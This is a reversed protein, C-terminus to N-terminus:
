PAPRLEVLGGGATRLFYGGGGDQKPFVIGKFKTPKADGPVVVSGSIAGSATALKLSPKLEGTQAFVAVGKSSLTFPLTLTPNVGGSSLVLEAAQGPTGFDFVPQNAAPKAYRSGILPLTVAFSDRLTTAKPRAPRFWSVSADLDSLAPRDRFFVQAVASGRGKDLAVYFPWEDTGTIAASQSFKTGDALEGKVRLTGAPAVTLFAFGDGQPATPLANAEDPALLLTYAGALPTPAAKSFIVRDAVFGVENGSENVTGVIADAGTEQVLALSVALAKTKLKNGDAGVFSGDADLKGKLPSKVGGRLMTGTFAGTRALKLTVLGSTRHAPEDERVLGAYSGAFAAFDSVGSNGIKRWTTSAGSVGINGAIDEVGAANFRLVYSGQRATLTQLGTISFISANVAQVRVATPLPVPVGDRLLAVDERGLSTPQIAESFSVLVNPVPSRRSAPRVPTIVATPAALDIFTALAASPSANGANDLAEVMLMHTGARILDVPLSFTAGTVAGEGLSQGTTKDTARVRTVGTAVRGTVAVATTNTRADTASRGRDPTIALKSPASPSVTQTTWTRTTLGTGVNGIADSVGAANVTLTYNGAATTATSLGVISYSTEDNQRISAGALSVNATGRKLTIDAATFSGDALPESFIVELSAVPTSRPSPSVETLSTVTPGAGDITFSETLMGLGAVGDGDDVGGALVSFRYLGDTATFAGLGGVRVANPATQTFTVGANLLNAGGDRTLLLDDATFSGLTLARSFVVDITSVPGTRPGPTFNGASVVVLRSVSMAFIVSASGQGARGTFEAVGGAQVSLVYTGEATTLGALGEIRFTADDLPMVTVGGNILNPGENLRLTVDAATFTDPDIGRSFVVDIGDLPTTRIAPVVPGLQTVQVAPPLLVTPDAEVYNLTYSGTGNFDFLHLSRERLAGTLSNPFTRDTQWINDGVLLVKGDSRIARVLKLGPAPDPIRIYSFGSPQTLTLQRTFGTGTAAASSALSVPAPAGTSQYLTDPANNADPVDNALFDPLQDDGPRDARVVHILEHIEVREILSTEAGGLENAHEFSAEYDIFKGQLSSELIFQAVQTEGPDLDGLNVTLSPDRTQNGVQTGVIRFDILLGKENEIIKPQASTISFDKAIGGGTNTVLLGLSFPESPEVLETFPDDSFVDRQQFYKLTLRADPFVTVPSGLLPLAVPQGGDNFHLTGAFRYVAPANPAATNKPIFTFQLRGTAGPALTGNGAAGALGSLEPGRVFFRDNTSNGNEDQIDLAVTVNELASEANNNTVELTGLFAQRTLVAQQDIQIKVQACVGQTKKQLSDLFAVAADRLADGPNEYGEIRSIEFVNNVRAFRAALEDTAIFDDSQGPRLQSLNTVGAALYDHTREYRDILRVAAANSVGQPLALALLSQRETTSIRRGADSNAAAADLFAQNWAQWTVADDTTVWSEDGYFYALADIIDQIRAAREEVLELAADQFSIPGAPTTVLEGRTNRRMMYLPAEPPAGAGLGQRCKRYENLSGIACGLAGGIPGGPLVCGVAAVVCDISDGGQICDNVSKACLGLGVIPPTPLFGTLCGALNDPTFPATICPDCDDNQAVSFGFSSGGGSAGSFGIPIFGGGAAGGGCAGSGSATIPAGAQHIRRDPGCVYSYIAIAFACDGGSAAQPGLALSSERPALSAAKRVIVPINVSSKAAIFDLARVLPTFEFGSEVGPLVLSIQEAAILGHNTLTMDIQFSEGDALEPINGPSLDMTVVPVPVDVEFTAVLKIQYRDPIETPVVVWTYTVTQRDLFVQRENTAGAVVVFGNRYTGHKAGSVELLYSGENVGTFTVVGDAGTTGQAAVISQDFPDRLRVTAGSVHPAEPTYFTYDDVVDIRVDGKAESLARFQFQVSVGVQPGRVVINGTYLQLPLNAAPLLQLTLKTREGPGLSPLTAPTALTLWPFNVPLQVELNGTPAGGLNVVEFDVLTQAGRLMGRTLTGPNAVLQANFPAVTIDVPVDIRAGESSTVRFTPRARTISTNAAQISYDVTVEAGAPLTPPVTLTASLNSAANQFLGSLGNLTRASNNRVTFSGQVPTGPALRLTLSAPETSLGIIEFQDQPTDGPVAPHDAAVQYLGAESSLPNFSVLYNGQANTIANLVRRTGNVLVRVSVPVNPVPSQDTASLAQGSLPVPTGAAVLTVETSVTAHYPASVDIGAIVRANNRESGEAIVGLADTTVVVWYFGPTAPLTIPVTRQYGTGPAIPGAVNTTGVVQGGSGAADTTLYIRDTWSGNAPASGDNAVMWSVNVTDGGQGMPPPLNVSDIVLDPLVDNIVTIGQVASNLGAATATITVPKTDGTTTQIDFNASANGDLIEVSAPVSARTADSSSLAVNVAGTTGPQRAITGTLTQGGVVTESSTSLVLTPGENDLVKLVAVADQGSIPQQLITDALTATITALREGEVTNNDFVAIPFDASTAGAPITVRAPLGVFSASSTLLVVVDRQGAADRTVTGYSAPAAANEVVTDPSLQLAINAGDDDNITLTASGLTVGPASATFRVIRQGILLNDDQVTIPVTAVTEGAPIVVSAPVNAAAPNSSILGVTLASTTSGNRTVTLTSAPNAVNEFVSVPSAEVLLGPADNETVTIPASGNVYDTASAVIQVARDPTFLLDDVPTVQFTVSPQGAPITVMAPVTLAGAPTAALTVNLAAGTDGNRRVTADFAAGNEAITTRGLNVTLAAQIAIAQDDIASNNNTQAEFFDNGANTRIAFYRPGVGLAPLTVNARREVTQGAPLAATSASSVLLQDGGLLTDDSLFIQDVWGAPAAANGNNKIQWLVEVTQGPVAQAPATISLVVLDAVNGRDDDNLTLVASGAIYGTATGTITIQRDVEALNDNVASLPGITETAGNAFAVTTPLNLQGPLSSTFAVQLAGQAHNRRVRVFGGAGGETLTSPDLEITLVSRLTVTRPESLLGPGATNSARAAIVNAGPQLTINTSFTGNVGTNLPGAVETGNRLIFVESNRAATGTVAIQQTDVTAGNTPSTLVPAAPPGLQLNVTRTTENTFAGGMAQVVVKLDYSGAAYADLPVNATLGDLATTDIGLSTFGGNGEPRIFFEAQAIGDADLAVVKLLEDIHRLVAGNTLELGTATFAGIVPPLRLTRPVPDAPWFSTNGDQQATVTMTGGVLAVLLPTPGSTNIQARGAPSTEFRVPLGSTATANLPFPATSVTPATFDITQFSRTANISTVAPDAGDLINVTVVAYHMGNVAAFTGLEAELGLGSAVLTAGAISTFPANRRYVEYHDVLAGPQAADWALVAQGNRGFLTMNGPNPLLTAGLLTNGGSETNFPDLTTVRITYGTAPQLNTAQYTTTSSSLEVPVNSGGFYVRYGRVFAASDPPPDWTFTISTAASTGALNVVEGVGSVSAQASASQVTTNLGGLVDEAVVAFHYIGGGNLGTVTFRRDETQIIVYPTLGVVSNFFNNGVYVRYRAIDGQGVENYTTWDLDVAGFAAGSTNATFGSGPGTVPAPVAADPVVMSLERSIAQPPAVPEDGVFLSVERSIAQPSIVYAAAYNVTTDSQGLGDVAVVAFFHDVGPTLGALEIFSTGFPVTAYPTLGTTSSFAGTDSLYINFHTIDGIAFQNYASWDLTATDGSANIGIVLGTVPPPPANSVIVVDVERSAVQKVPPAVEEGIFFTVERSIAQPSIVYAASYAVTSVFQGRADVAVVAFYHDQFATLGQLMASNLEGSISMFPTLGTVDSFPGADSVYIDFRVVSGVAFQNYSSWDLTASEGTPSVTVSLETLAPPPTNSVNALSAERSDIQAFPAFPGNEIFLSVERSVVEKLPTSEAGGNDLAVERSMVERILVQAESRPIWSSFAMAVFALLCTSRRM